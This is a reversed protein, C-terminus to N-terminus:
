KAKSKKLKNYLQKYFSLCVDESIKDNNTFVEITTGYGKASLILFNHKKFGIYWCHFYFESKYYFSPIGFLKQLVKRNDNQVINCIEWIDNTSDFRWACVKAFNLINITQAIGSKYEEKINKSKIIKM